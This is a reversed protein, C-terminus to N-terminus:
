TRNIWTKIHNKTYGLLRGIKAHNRGDSSFEKHLKNIRYNEGKQGVIYDPTKQIIGRGFNTIPKAIFKGSDVHKKFHKHYVEQSVLAAPKVGALMMKIEKGEHPGRWPEVPEYGREDTFGAGSHSYKKYEMLLEKFRKM